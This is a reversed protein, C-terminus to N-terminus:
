LGSWWICNIGLMQVKSGVGEEVLTDKGQGAETDILMGLGLDSKKDVEWVYYGRDRNMRGETFRIVGYKAPSVCRSGEM